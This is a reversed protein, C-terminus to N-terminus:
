ARERYFEQIDARVRRYDAGADYVGVLGSALRKVNNDFSPSSQKTCMVEGALMFVAVPYDCSDIVEIAHAVAKDIPQVPGKLQGKQPM